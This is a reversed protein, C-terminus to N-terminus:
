GVNAYPLFKLRTFVPFSFGVVVRLKQLVRLIWLYLVCGRFRMMERELFLVGYGLLLVRFPVKRRLEWFLFVCSPGFAAALFGPCRALSFSNQIGLRQGEGGSHFSVSGLM